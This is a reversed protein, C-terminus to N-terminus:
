RSYFVTGYLRRLFNVDDWSLTVGTHGDEEFHRRFRDYIMRQEWLMVDRKSDLKAFIAGVKMEIPEINENKTM